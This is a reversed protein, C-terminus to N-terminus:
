DVAFFFVIFDVVLADTLFIIINRGNGAYEFTKMVGGISELALHLFNQPAYTGFIGVIVAECQAGAVMM